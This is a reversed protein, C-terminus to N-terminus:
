PARGLGRRVAFAIVQARNDLHLRELIEAMHYKITRESLGLTDSIAKYTHGQAILTLVQV